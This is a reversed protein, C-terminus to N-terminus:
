VPPYSPGPGRGLNFFTFKVAATGVRRFDRHTPCGTENNGNRIWLLSVLHSFPREDSVPSPTESVHRRHGLPQMTVVAGSIKVEDCCTTILASRQKRTRMIPVQKKLHQFLPSSYKLKHNATVDHHGLM